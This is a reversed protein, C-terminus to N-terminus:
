WTASPEPTGLWEAVELFTGVAGGIAYGVYYWLSRGGSIGEMEEGSLENVDYTRLDM